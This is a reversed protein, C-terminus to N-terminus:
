NMVTLVLPARRECEPGVLWRASLYDGDDVFRWEAVAALQEPSVPNSSATLGVTEGPLLYDVPGTFYGGVAILNLGDAGVGWAGPLGLIQVPTDSDNRVGGATWATGDLHMKSYIINVQGQPCIPAPPEYVPPAVPAPAPPAVPPPGPTPTKFTHLPAGPKPAPAQPTVSEQGSAAATRIVQTLGLGAGVSLALVIVAALSIGTWLIVRKRTPQM